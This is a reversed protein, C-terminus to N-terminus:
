KFARITSKTRGEPPLSKDPPVLATLTNGLAQFQAGELEILAEGSHTTVIVSGNWEWVLSESTMAMLMYKNPMALRKDTGHISIAEITQVVKGDRASYLTVRGASNVALLSGTCLPQALPAGKAEWALSGDKRSYATVGSYDPLLVHETTVVGVLYPHGQMAPLPKEWLWDAKAIDWAKLSYGRSGGLVYYLSTSDAAVLVQRSHTSPQEPSPLVEGTVAHVAHGYRRAVIGPGAVLLSQEDAMRTPTFPGIWCVVGTAADVCWVARSGPSTPMGCDLYFRGQWATVDNRDVKPMSLSWLRKGDSESIAELGSTGTYNLLVDATAAIPMRTHAGATPGGEAGPFVFGAPLPAHELEIQWKQKLNKGPNWAPQYGCTTTTWQPNTWDASQAPPKPVPVVEMGEPDGAVLPYCTLTTSVREYPDEGFERQAALLHGGGLVCWRAAPIQQRIGLDGRNLVYTANDSAVIVADDTVLLSRPSTEHLYRVSKQKLSGAEFVRLLGCDLTYVDKGDTVPRNNLEHIPWQAVPKGTTANAIELSPSTMLLGAKLDARVVRMRRAVGSERPAELSRKITGKKTDLLDITGFDSFLLIEKARAIVQFDDDFGSRPEYRVPEKWQEKGSKREYLQLLRLNNANTGRALLGDPTLWARMVAPSGNTAWKQKGTKVDLCRLKGDGHVFATGAEVGVLFGVAALPDEWKWKQKGSAADVAVVQKRSDDKMAEFVAIGDAIGIMPETEAFGVVGLDVQWASEGFSHGAISGPAYGSTTSIATETFAPQQFPARQSSFWAGTPYTGDVSNTGGFGCTLVLSAVVFLLRRM